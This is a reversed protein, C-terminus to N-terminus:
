DLLEIIREKAKDIAQIIDAKTDGDDFVVAVDGASLSSDGATLSVGDKATASSISMEVHQIAM